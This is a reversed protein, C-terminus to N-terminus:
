DRAADVEALFELVARTFAEPQELNVMHAVGPFAVLGAGAVGDAIRSAAEQVGSADLDGVMVVTPVSVEGLRGAAPPQLPQAAPEPRPPLYNSRGFERMRQRLAPDIREPPQGPGDAWLRVELEILADMDGAEFAKEMEEFAAHEEPTSVEEMGGLGPAVLVLGDVADPAELAVDLAISGGRSIGLVYAPRAAAHDLVALADARNSFPVAESETRGFGRTDYRVVRYREAWSPVQADWMRLDAVGAHILLLPHGEGSAEWYIRGGDVDLFGSEHRM